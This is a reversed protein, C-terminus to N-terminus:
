ALPDRVFDWAAAHLEGGSLTMDGGAGGITDFIGSYRGWVAAQATAGKAASYDRSYYEYEKASAKLSETSAIKRYENALDYDNAFLADIKDKDPTGAKAVVHGQADTTLEVGKSVNIGANRLRDTLASAYNREEEPTAFLSDLSSSLLSLPKNAPTRPTVVATDSREMAAMVAAFSDDTGSASSPSSSYASSSAHTIAEIM